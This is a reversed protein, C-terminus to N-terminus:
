NSEKGFAFRYAEKWRIDDFLGDMWDRFYCQATAALIGLVFAGKAVIDGPIDIAIQVGFIVTTWALYIPVSFFFTALFERALLIIGSLIVWLVVLIGALLPVIFIPLDSFMWIIDSLLDTAEAFSPCWGNPLWFLVCTGFMAYILAYVATIIESLGFGDEFPTSLAVEGVSTDPRDTPMSKPLLVVGAFVNFFVLEVFAQLSFPEGMAEPYILQFVPISFVLQEWMPDSVTHDPRTAIYVITVIVVILCLLMVIISRLGGWVALPGDNAKQLRLAVPNNQNRKNRKKLRYSRQWISLFRGITIYDAAYRIYPWSLISLRFLGYAIALGIGIVILMLVIEFFIGM